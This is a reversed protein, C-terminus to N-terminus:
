LEEAELPLLLDHPGESHPVRHSQIRKMDMFGTETSM